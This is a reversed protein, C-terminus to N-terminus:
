KKEGEPERPQNGTLLYRETLDPYAALEERGKDTLSYVGRRVRTFWKYYNDYLISGTNEATGMARLKAPSLPGCADLCVAIHVAAERYATVIKTRTSGGQNLDTSRGSAEELVARRFDKRTRRVAPAPHFAVEVNGGSEAQFSVLVLGIELRRLVRCAARWDKSRVRKGPHPVVVYVSDFARQRDVAQAVLPLSLHRKMEFILAEGDREAVVDIGRVESRVVYGRAVLYDRLPGYLDTEKIEKSPNSRMNSGFIATHQQFTLWM